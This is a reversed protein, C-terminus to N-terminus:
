SAEFGPPALGPAHICAAKFLEGMQDEGILRDLQRAIQGAKAPQARALAEARQDIGLRLLFERQTLIATEAGEARAAALM